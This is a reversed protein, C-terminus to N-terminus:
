INQTKCINKFMKGHGPIVYDAIQLVKKRSEILADNDKVYQDNLTLLTDYDKSPEKDASWWFIDGAIVVTGMNDTNVAVSCHFQDHGPTKIIQISHDLTQDDQSKIEGNQFFQDSSDLITANEFAGVLLCHDLHTHTLIVFDIQGTEINKQALADMLEKRNFGPDVIIKNKDTEILVVSPSIKEVDNHGTAYGEILVEVKTM